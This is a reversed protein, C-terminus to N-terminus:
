RSLDRLVIVSKISPLVHWQTAIERLILTEGVKKWDGKHPFVANIPSVPRIKEIWSYFHVKVDLIM